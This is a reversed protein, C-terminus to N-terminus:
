NSYMRQRRHIYVEEDGVINGNFISWGKEEIMEVLKKGEKNMKMNKSNRSRRVGLRNEEMERLMEVERGTRANFDGILVKYGEEKREM